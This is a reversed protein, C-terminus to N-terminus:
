NKTTRYTEALSKRCNYYVYNHSFKKVKWMWTKKPNFVLTNITSNVRDQLSRGPKLRMEKMLWHMVLFNRKFQSVYKWLFTFKGSKGRTNKFIKKDVKYIYFSFVPLMKYINNLMVSNFLLKPNPNMGENIIQYSYSNFELSNTNFNQYKNNKFSLYNLTIFTQKWNFFNNYDSSLLKLHENFSQHMSKTLIKLTKLRKGQRMLYNNLKLLELENINRRINKTRKFCRPIDVNSLRFFNIFTINSLYKFELEVNKFPIKEYKFENIKNPKTINLCNNLRFQFFEDSLQQTQVSNFETPKYELQTDIHYDQNLNILVNPILTRNVM